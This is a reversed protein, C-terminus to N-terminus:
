RMCSCTTRLCPPSSCILIALLIEVLNDTILPTMTVGRNWALGGFRSSAPRVSYLHGQMSVVAVFVPVQLQQKSSGSEVLRQVGSGVGGNPKGAFDAARAHSDRSGMAQILVMEPDAM